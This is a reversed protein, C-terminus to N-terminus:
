AEALVLPKELVTMFLPPDLAIPFARREGTVEYGRRAYYAILELRSEIVTMEIRNADLKDRACDEAAAILRKGFGSAQLTPEVCLQGLYALGDGCDRVAVCGIPQEGILAVLLCQRPDAVIEQLVKLSTRDGSLLDAEHTWGLRATNGRYAREILPHLAPLDAATAQRIAVDDM